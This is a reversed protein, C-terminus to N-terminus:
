PTHSTVARVCACACAHPSGTVVGNVLIEIWADHDQTVGSDNKMEEEVPLLDQGPDLNVLQVSAQLEGGTDIPYWKNM